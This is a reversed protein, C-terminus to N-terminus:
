ISCTLSISSRCCAPPSLSAPVRTAREALLPVDRGCVSCRFRYYLDTSLAMTRRLAPKEHHSATITSSEASVADAVKVGAKLGVADGWVLKGVVLPQHQGRDTCKVLVTTTGRDVTWLKRRRRSM